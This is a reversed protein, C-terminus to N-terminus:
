YDGQPGVGYGLYVHSLISFKTGNNFDSKGGKKDQVYTEIGGVSPESIPGDAPRDMWWDVKQSKSPPKEMVAWIGRGLHGLTRHGRWHGGVRSQAPTATYGAKNKKEGGLKERSDM